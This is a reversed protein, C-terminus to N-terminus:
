NAKRRRHPIFAEKPKNKIHASVANAQLQLDFLYAPAGVTKDGKKCGKERYGL